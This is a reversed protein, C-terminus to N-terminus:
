SCFCLRIAEDEFGLELEDQVRVADYGEQALLNTISRKINEDCCLRM